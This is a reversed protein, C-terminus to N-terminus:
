CCGPGKDIPDSSELLQAATEAAGSIAAGPIWGEGSLLGGILRTAGAAYPWLGGAPKRGVHPPEPAPEETKPFVYFDALEEPTLPPHKDPM